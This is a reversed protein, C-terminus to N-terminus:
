SIYFKYGESPNDQDHVVIIKVNTSTDINLYMAPISSYTGYNLIKYVGERERVCQHTIDYEVSDKMPDLTKKSVYVGLEDINKKKIYRAAATRDAKRSAPDYSWMIINASNLDIKSKNKALAYIDIYVYDSTFKVKNCFVAPRSGNSYWRGIYLTTSSIIEINEISSIDTVASIDIAIGSDRAINGEDNFSITRINHEKSFKYIIALAKPNVYGITQDVNGSFAGRVQTYGVCSSDRPKDLYHTDSSGNIHFTSGEIRTRQLDLHLGANRQGSKKLYENSAEIDNFLSEFEIVDDTQNTDFLREIILNKM